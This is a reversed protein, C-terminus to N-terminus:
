LIDDNCCQCDLHEDVVEKQKGAAQMWKKFSIADTPKETQLKQDRAEGYEDVIEAIRDDIAAKEWGEEEAQARFAAVADDRKADMIDTQDDVWRSVRRNRNRYAGRIERLQNKTAAVKIGQLTDRDNGVDKQSIFKEKAAKIEEYSGKRWRRLLDNPPCRRRYGLAYWVLIYFLSELDHHLGHKYNEHFGRLVERAMFPATGTRVENKHAETNVYSALDFDLIVLIAKGKEDRYFALNGFSIDRHLLKKKKYLIHLGSLM